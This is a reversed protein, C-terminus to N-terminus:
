YVCCSAATTWCFLVSARTLSHKRAGGLYSLRTPHAPFHDLAPASTTERPPHRTLPDTTHTHNTPPAEIRVGVTPPPPPHIVSFTRRPTTATSPRSPSRVLKHAENRLIERDKCTCPESEDANIVLYSPRRGRGRGGAADGGQPPLPGGEGGRSEGGNGKEGRGEGKRGWGVEGACM